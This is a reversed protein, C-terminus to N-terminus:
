KTTTPKASKLLVQAKHRIIRSDLLRHLFIWPTVDQWAMDNRNHTKWQQRQEKKKELICLGGAAWRGSYSPVGVVSASNNKTFDLLLNNVSLSMLSTTGANKIMNITCWTILQTSHSQLIEQSCLWGPHLVDVAASNIPDWEGCM